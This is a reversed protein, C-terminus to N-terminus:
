LRSRECRSDGQEFCTYTLEPHGHRHDVAPPDFRLEDLPEDGVGVGRQALEAAGAVVDVFQEVTREGIGLCAGVELGLTQSPGGTSQGAARREVRRAEGLGTDVRLPEVEVRDAAIGVVVFASRTSWAAWSMQVSEDGYRLVRVVPVM